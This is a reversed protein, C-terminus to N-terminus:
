HGSDGRHSCASPSSKGQWLSGRKELVALAATAERLCRDAAEARNLLCGWAGSVSDDDADINFNIEAIRDFPASCFLSLFRFSPQSCCKQLRLM